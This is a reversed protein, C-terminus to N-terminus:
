SSKTDNVKICKLLSRTVSCNNRYAYLENVKEDKKCEVKQRGIEESMLSNEIEEREEEPCEYDNISIGRTLDEEYPNSESRTYYKITHTNCHKERMQSIKADYMPIQDEIGKFYAIDTRDDVDTYTVGTM